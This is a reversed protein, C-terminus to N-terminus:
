RALIHGETGTLKALISLSIIFQTAIVRGYWEFVPIKSWVENRVVFAYCGSYINGIPCKIM